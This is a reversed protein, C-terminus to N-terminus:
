CASELLAAEDHIALSGVVNNPSESGIEKTQSCTRKAYIVEHHLVVSWTLITCSVAGSLSELRYSLAAGSDGSQM